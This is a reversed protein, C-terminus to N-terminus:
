NGRAFPAHQVFLLFMEEESLSDSDFQVAGLAQQAWELSRLLAARHFQVGSQKCNVAVCQLSYYVLNGMYVQDSMNQNRDWACLRGIAGVVDEKTGIARAARGSGRLVNYITSACQRLARAGRWIRPLSVYSEVAWQLCPIVDLPSGTIFDAQLDRLFGNRVSRLRARGARSPVTVTEAVTVIEAEPQTM